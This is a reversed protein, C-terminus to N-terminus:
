TSRPRQRANDTTSLMEVEAGAGLAYSVIPTRRLRLRRRGGRRVIDGANDVYYTDNGGLGNM